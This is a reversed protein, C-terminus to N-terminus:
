QEFVVQGFGKEQHYSSADVAWFSEEFSQTAKTRIIRLAWINGSEPVRTGISSFPIAIEVMWAIVGKSMAYKLGNISVTQFEGNFSAKKCSIKEDGTLIISYYNKGTRDPSIQIEIKDKDSIKEPTGDRCYFALYMAESDYALLGVTQYVPKGQNFLCFNGAVGANKWCEEVIRGDIKPSQNTRRVSLISRTKMLPVQSTQQTEKKIEGSDGKDGSIDISFSKFQRGGGVLRFTVSYNGSSTSPKPIMTVEFYVRQDKPISMKEPYIQFDFAPSEALLRIEAIGRDMNNQLFIKFTAKDKVVINYTEPKVILKDAQRFVNDCLHGYSPFIFISFSFIMALNIKRM